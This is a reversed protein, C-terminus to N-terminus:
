HIVVGETNFIELPQRFVWFESWKETHTGCDSIVPWGPVNHFRQIKPLFYLKGVEAVKRYEYCFHKSQKKRIYITKKFSHFMKNSMEALKLWINQSNSVEQYIQDDSLQKEAEM